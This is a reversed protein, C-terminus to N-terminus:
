NLTFLVGNGKLSEGSQYKEDVGKYKRDLSHLNINFFIMLKM